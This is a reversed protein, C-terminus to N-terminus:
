PPLHSHIQPIEIKFTHYGESYDNAPNHGGPSSCGLTHCVPLVDRLHPEYKTPIQKNNKEGLFECYEARDSIYSYDSNERLQFDDTM